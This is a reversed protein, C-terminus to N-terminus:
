LHQLETALRWEFLETELVGLEIEFELRDSM